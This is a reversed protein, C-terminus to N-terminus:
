QLDSPAIVDDIKLVMRCLQTALQIQQQKSILTEIVHAEKMDNSGNCMCDVGLSPNKEEIQRKKLESVINMSNLGSNEALAIPIDDLADSFARYAYQELGAIGKAEEEVRISCALEASGGGYVIKNDKILNRTVCIADWLSRKAEQVMMDNGGRILVTVTKSNKCGEIMLLSDKTTGVQEESVIIM